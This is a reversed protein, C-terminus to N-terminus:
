GISVSLGITFLRTHSRLNLMKEQRELMEPTVGLRAVAAQSLVDISGERHKSQDIQIFPSYGEHFLYMWRSCIVPINM